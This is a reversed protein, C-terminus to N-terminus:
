FILGCASCRGRLTRRPTRAVDPSDDPCCDLCTGATPPFCRVLRRHIDAGFNAGFNARHNAFSKAIAAATRAADPTADPAIDASDAACFGRLMRSADPCHVPLTRASAPSHGASHGCGRGTWSWDATLGCGHGCGTRPRAIEACCGAHRGVCCGRLKRAVDSVHGPLQRSADWLVGIFTRAL